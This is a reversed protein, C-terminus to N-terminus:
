IYEVDSKVGGEMVYHLIIKICGGLLYICIIVVSDPLKIAGRLKIPAIIQM